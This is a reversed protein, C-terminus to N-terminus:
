RCLRQRRQEFLCVAASAAVNLSDVGGAMPIRVLGTAAARAAAGVGQGEHGFVWLAPGTLDMEFLSTGGEAATALIPGAARPAWESATRSEYLGLRFHAGMAARLVKPSWLLATGPTTIVTHMGAAAATRLITGVNGSDQLGDLILAAELREPLPQAAPVPLVALIGSPTAVPAILAFLRDTVILREECPVRAFLASLESRALASESACVLRACLGNETVAAVLHPGDLLALRSGPAADLQQPASGRALRALERILPNDRSSIRRAAAGGQRMPM